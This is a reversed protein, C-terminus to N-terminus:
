SPAEESSDAYLRELQTRLSEALSGAQTIRIPHHDVRTNIRRDDDTVLLGNEEGRWDDAAPNGFVLEEDHRMYALYELLERVGREVTDKGSRGSGHYKAEVVLSRQPDISGDREYVVLVDPRKTRVQSGADFLDGAIEKTRTRIAERRTVSAADVDATDGLFSFQKSRAAQEYFVSIHDGNDLEFSGVADRNTQIPALEGDTGLIEELTEIVAFLVYLEFLTSYQQDPSHGSDTPVILTNSLLDTLLERDVETSLLEEYRLYREAADRYLAHRSRSATELMANTPEGTDPDRIRDLNVNGEITQRTRGLLQEGWRSGWDYTALEDAWTELGADLRQLLARLVINEDLDYEEYRSQTVFVTQDDPDRSYRERITKSWDVRSSVESHTINEETSTGTRLERVRPRLEEAFAVTDAELLYHLILLDDFGAIREGFAAEALAGGIVDSNLEGSLVYLELNEAVADILEEPKM